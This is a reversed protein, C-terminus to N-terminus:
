IEVVGAEATLYREIAVKTPDSIDIFEMGLRFGRRNRVVATLEFREKVAPLQLEARVVTGLDLAETAYVSMGGTSLEYTRVVSNATEPEGSPRMRVRVDVKIRKFRRTASDM